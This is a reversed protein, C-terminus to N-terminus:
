PISISAHDNVKDAAFEKELKGKIKMINEHTGDRYEM